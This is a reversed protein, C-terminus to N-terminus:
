DEGSVANDGHQISFQRKDVVSEISSHPEGDLASFGGAKGLFVNEGEERRKPINIVNSINRAIARTIDSEAIDDNGPVKEVLYHDYVVACDVDDLAEAVNRGVGDGVLDHDLRGVKGSAPLLM